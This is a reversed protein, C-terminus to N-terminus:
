TGSGPRTRSPSTGDCWTGTRSPRGCTASCSAPCPRCWCTRRSSRSRTTVSPAEWASARLVMDDIGDGDIDPLLSPESGGAFDLGYWPEEDELPGGAPLASTRGTIVRLYSDPDTPRAESTSQSLLVIDSLGDGTLDAAGGYMGLYETYRHQVLTWQGDATDAMSTRTTPWGDAPGLLLYLDGADYSGQQSVLFLDTSGDGDFDGAVQVEGYWHGVADDGVPTGPGPLRGRVLLVGGLDAVVDTIGDRDFDATRGLAGAGGYELTLAAGDGPGEWWGTASHEDVVVLEGCAGEGAPSGDCDQDIGDCPDVAGPFRAPDADDCDVDAPAGDGDGDVHPTDATDHVTDASDATPETTDPPAVGDDCALLLLLTM